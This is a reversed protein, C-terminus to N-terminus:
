IRCFVEFQNVIEATYVFTLITVVVSILIEERLCWFFCTSLLVGMSKVFIFILPGSELCDAMFPNIEVAHGGYVLYMTGCTDLAHLLVLVWIMFTNYATVLM